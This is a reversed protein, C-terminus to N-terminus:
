QRRHGTLRDYEDRLLRQEERFAAWKRRRELEVNVSARMAPSMPTRALVPPDPENLAGGAPPQEHQVSAPAEVRRPAEEVPAVDIATKQAEREAAETNRLAQWEDFKRRQEARGEEELARHHRIDEVAEEYSDHSEGRFWDGAALPQEKMEVSWVGQGVWDDAQRVALPNWRGGLVRRVSAAEERLVGALYGWAMGPLVEASAEGLREFERDCTSPTLRSGQQERAFRQAEEIGGVADRLFSTQGSRTYHRCATITAKQALLMRASVRPLRVEVMRPDLSAWPDWAFDSVVSGENLRAVVADLAAPALQSSMTGVLSAHVGDILAQFRAAGSTPVPPELVLELRRMLKPMGSGHGRAAATEIAGKVIRITARLDTPDDM